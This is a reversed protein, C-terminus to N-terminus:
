SDTAVAIPAGATGSQCAPIGDALLAPPPSPFSEAAPDGGPAPFLNAPLRAVYIDSQVSPSTRRHDRWAIWTALDTATTLSPSDLDRPVNCVPAGDAAITTPPNLLFGALLAVLVSPAVSVFWARAM